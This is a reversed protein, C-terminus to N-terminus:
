CGGTDETGSKGGGPTTRILPPAPKKDDFKIFIKQDDAVGQMISGVKSGFLYGVLGANMLGIYIKGDDKKYVAITCPMLISLIRTNDDKLLPKSYKISCAEVLLVPLVTGGAAEVAKHPSRLGSLAWGNHSLTKINSQIRAATEELGYPSEHEYFMLSGAFQWGLVLSAVIGVLFGITYKLM